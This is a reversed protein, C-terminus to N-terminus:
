KDYFTDVNNGFCSAVGMGTVVIRENDPRKAAHVVTSSGAAALSQINCVLHAHCAARGGPKAECAQADCSGPLQGELLVEQFGQASRAEHGLAGEPGNAEVPQCHVSTIAPALKKPM